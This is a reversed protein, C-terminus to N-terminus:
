KENKLSIDNIFDIELFGKRFNIEANASISLDREDVVDYSEATITFDYNDNIVIYYDVYSFIYITLYGDEYFTFDSCKFYMDGDVLYMKVDKIDEDIKLFTKIQMLEEDGFFGDYTEEDYFSLEKDYYPNIKVPQISQSLGTSSICFLVMLMYFVKKM